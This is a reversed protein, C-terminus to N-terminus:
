GNLDMVVPTYAGSFRCWRLVRLVGGTRQSAICAVAAMALPDGVNLLYDQDSFDDMNRHIQEITDPRIKINGPPLVEIIPGFKEAPELDFKDVFEGTARDRYMPRQTMFVRNNM